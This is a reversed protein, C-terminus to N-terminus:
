NGLAAAVKAKSVTWKMKDNLYYSLDKGVARSFAIAINERAVARHHYTRLKPLKPIEVFLKELTDKGGHKQCVEYLFSALFEDLLGGDAVTPYSNAYNKFWTASTQTIYSKQMEAWRAIESDGVEKVSINLDKLYMAAIVRATARMWWDHSKKGKVPQYAIREDFAPNWCNQVIVQFVAQPIERKGKSYSRYLEELQHDPIAMGLKGVEGEPDGLGKRFAVRVKGQHPNEIKAKFGTVASVTNIVSEFDKAITEMVKSSYTGTIGSEVLLSVTGYSWAKGPASSASTKVKVAAVESPVLKKKDVLNTSPPAKSDFRVNLTKSGRNGGGHESKLVGLPVSIRMMGKGSPHIIVSYNKGSGMVREVTGNSVKLASSPFSRVWSVLNIDVRFPGSVAREPGKLTVGFPIKNPKTLVLERISKGKGKNYLTLVEEEKLARKWIGLDDILGNWVRRSDWGEISGGIALSNTKGRSGIESLAPPDGKVCLIGDVYLKSGVGKEAIGVVHHWKNDLVKLKKEDKDRLMIKPGCAFHIYPENNELSMRYQAGEGHSLITGWEGKQLPAKIWASITVTNDKARLTDQSPSVWVYDTTGSLSLAGKFLGLSSIMGSTSDVFQGDDQVKSDRSLAGAVDVLDGDFDWYAVLGDEFGGGFALGGASLWYSAVLFKSIEWSKM